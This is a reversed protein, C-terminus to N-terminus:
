FVTKKFPGIGTEKEKNKDKNIQLQCIHLNSFSQPHHSKFGPTRLEAGCGRGKNVSDKQGKAKELGKM